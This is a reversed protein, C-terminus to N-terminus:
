KVTIDYTVDLTFPGFVPNDSEVAFQITHEGVPLPAVLLWYGAGIAFNPQSIEAGLDDLLDTDTLPTPCSEARYADLGTIPVGDITVSMSTAFDVQYNAILRILEEATMASADYGLEGALWSADDLDDPAWWLSNFIPFFLAKGRPVTVVRSASEGFTGALFWVPGSQGVAAFQGTEDLIPNEAAPISVAWTWWEAVWDGYTLGYPTSQPPLIRPNANGAAEVPPLIATFAFLVVALTAGVMYKLLRNKGTSWQTTM